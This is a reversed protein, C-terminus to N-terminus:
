PSAREWVEAEGRIHPHKPVAAYVRCAGMGSVSAVGTNSISAMAADSTSYTYSESGGSAHYRIQYRPQLIPDWTLVQRPPTLVVEEVIELDAMAKLPPSLELAAGDPLALTRLTAKVQSDYSLNVVIKKNM